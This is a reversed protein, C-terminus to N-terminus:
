FNNKGDPHLLYSTPSFGTKKKFSASFYYVNEFGCMEAIEGVSYRGTILLEKAHDIRVKNVMRVPSMFFAKRFLECFYSYKWGTVGCLARYDFKPNRYNELIYNYAKQMQSRVAFTLYDEGSKRIADIIEYLVQMSQVYYGPRKAHFLHYLRFFRDKLTDLGSLALPREPMPDDTDFFVDICDVAKKRTVTYPGHMQGKPLYRVVGPLDKLLYGDAQTINDGESFFILEYSSIHSDYEAMEPEDAESTFRDVTYIRTINIRENQFLNM